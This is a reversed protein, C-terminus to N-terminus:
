NDEYVVLKPVRGLIVEWLDLAPIGEDKLAIYTAVLEAETSSHSVSTQKKAIFGLPYFTHPGLLVLLVGSTSKSDRRDGALDADTFLGLHLEEPEDGISATQKRDASNNLYSIM